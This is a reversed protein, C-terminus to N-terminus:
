SVGSVTWGIPLLEVQRLESFEFHEYLDSKSMAPSLIASQKKHFKLLQKLVQKVDYAALFKQVESLPAPSELAALFAAIVERLDEAPNGDTDFETIGSPEDMEEDFEESLIDVWGAKTLDKISMDISELLSFTPDEDIIVLDPPPTQPPRGLCAHTMIFVGTKANRFDKQQKIYSCTAFHECLQTQNKRKKECMSSKVSFGRRAVETVIEHKKCMFEDSDPDTKASRGRWIKVSSAVDAIEDAFEFCKVLTPQFVWVVHNHPLRQIIERIAHTKGLGPTGLILHTPTPDQRTNPNNQGARNQPLIDRGIKEVCSKLEAEADALNLVNSKQNVTTTETKIHQECGAKLSM